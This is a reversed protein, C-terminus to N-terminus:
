ICVVNFAATLKVDCSVIDHAVSFFVAGASPAFLSPGVEGEPTDVLELQQLSTVNDDSLYGDRALQYGASSPISNFDGCIIHPKDAGGAQSVLEKIASAIQEASISKWLYM